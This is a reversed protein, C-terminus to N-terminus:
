REPRGSSGIVLRLVHAPGVEHSRYGVVLVVPLSEIRRALLRLVDLSAEDAWHM